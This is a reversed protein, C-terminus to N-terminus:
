CWAESAMVEIEGTPLSPNATEPPRRQVTGTVQVVWEPRLQEALKYAEPSLEPNFVVQITGSRDRLDVFIIGGHDRRRGVWGALTPQTNIHTERLSGCNATKLM